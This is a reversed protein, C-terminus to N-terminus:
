SPLNVIDSNKEKNASLDVAENVNVSVLKSVGAERMTVGSLIDALEMTLKNHTIFIFQVSESMEKVVRCFRNNNADDLPADVEDLLCFPAPNIKFISFVFAIGTGAKEGGSLLNINKVLKGPPRAMITVGTNLLDNETLELYAKGGGFIKTFFTNLNDNISDFIEKFKSKTEYDIKKIANDLTKISESLDNYQNDLYTKREQQDKLEDIAALNIAGLSNIRQQLKSIIKEVDEINKDEKINKIANEIEYIPMDSNDKLANRQATKEGLSIKISELKERLNSIEQNIDNKDSELTLIDNDFSSLNNRSQSLLEEKNKKDNLLTKLKTQMNSSPRDDGKDESLLLLKRDELSQKQKELRQINSKISTEESLLSSTLVNYDNERKQAEEVKWAIKDIIQKLEIKEKDLQQKKISHNKIDAELADISKISNEILQKYDIIKNKIDNIEDQQSRILSRIKKVLSKFGDLINKINLPLQNLLKDNNKKLADSRDFDILLSSIKEQIDNASNIIINKDDSKEDENVTDSELIKLRKTLLGISKESAELKTKEIEQKKITELQQSIFENYTSQWNQLAFNADSKEKNLQSLSNSTDELQISTEKLKDQADELKKSEDSIENQTDDINKILEEALKKRSFESEQSHEIDKECKAIESGIHYFDSQVSNFVEQEASRKQRNEEILKEKNTLLSNQKEQEIDIKNIEKELGDIKKNFNNWKISLLELKLKRENNKLEKYDNASKAQRELKGLQSTIEKMVDNLRNLNEKTHKLRLETERRKEKYKSIGAAEELYTRLEEPKAEVLRSIMGQEIIAYSRPGLGTGLFVERIDKRRCKTNNLFYNSVGDRSVERRITIESYRAFKSDLSNTSNDFNLEVFAKSIEPRSSSGSFIVDDMSDGRLNRASSEGMVWRIADIINSKGCGNPGIIGTLNSPFSLTTPDVFTKFGALKIKTLRM